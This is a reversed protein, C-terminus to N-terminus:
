FTFFSRVYDVQVCYLIYWIAEHLFQLFFFYNLSQVVNVLFKKSVMFQFYRRGLQVFGYLCGCYEFLEVTILMLVWYLDIHGVPHFRKSSRFLCYM